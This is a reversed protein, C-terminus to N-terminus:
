RLDLTLDLWRDKSRFSIPQGPLPQNIHRDSLFKPIINRDLPIAHSAWSFPNFPAQLYAQQSPPLSMLNMHLRDNDVLLLPLNVSASLFFWMDGIHQPRGKGFTEVYLNLCKNVEDPLNKLHSVLQEQAHEDFEEGELMIFISIAVGSGIDKSQYPSSVLRTFLNSLAEFPVGEMRKLLAATNWKWFILIHGGEGSEKWHEVLQGILEQSYFCSTAIVADPAHIRGPLFKEVVRQSDVFHRKIQDEVTRGAFDDTVAIYDASFGALELWHSIIAPRHAGPTASAIEMALQIVKEKSPMMPKREHPAKSPNQWFYLTTDSISLAQRIRKRLGPNRRVKGNKDVPNLVARLEDAFASDERLVDIPQSRASKKARKEKVVNKSSPKPLQSKSSRDSMEHVTAGDLKSKM